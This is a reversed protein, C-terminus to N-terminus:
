LNIIKGKKNLWLVIEIFLSSVLVTVIVLPLNTVGPPGIEKIEPHNKLADAMTWYIYLGVLVLVFALGVALLLPIHKEFWEKLKM